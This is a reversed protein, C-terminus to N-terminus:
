DYSLKEKVNASYSSDPFTTVFSKFIDQARKKDGQEVYSLGLLYTADDNFNSKPYDALLKEFIPIADSYKNQKYDIHGVIFLINAEYEKYTKRFEEITALQELAKEYSGQRYNMLVENFVSRYIVLRQKDFLSQMLKGYSGKKFNEDMHSFLYFADMVKDKDLLGRIESVTSEYDGLQKVPEAHEPARPTAVSVSNSEAIKKPAVPPRPTKGYYVLFIATLALIVFLVYAIASNFISKREFEQQTLQIQKVNRLLQDLQNEIKSYGHALDDDEKKM